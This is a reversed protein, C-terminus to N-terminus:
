WLARFSLGIVLFLIAWVICTASAGESKMGFLDLSMPGDLARALCVLLLASLGAVPIGIAAPGHQDYLKVPDITALSGSAEQVIKVTAVAIAASLVAYIIQVFITAATNWKSPKKEDGSSGRPEGTV